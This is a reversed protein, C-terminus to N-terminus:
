PALTGDCHGSCIIFVKSGSEYFLLYSDSLPGIRKAWKVLNQGYVQSPHLTDGGSRM